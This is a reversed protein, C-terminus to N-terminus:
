RDEFDVNEYYEEKGKEYADPNQMYLIDSAYYEESNIMIPDYREDLFNDYNTDRIIAEEEQQPFERECHMVLTTLLSDTVALVRNVQDDDVAERIAAQRQLGFGHGVTGSSNRTESIYTSEAKILKDEEDGINLMNCVLGTLEPIKMSDVESESKTNTVLLIEKLVSECLTKCRDVVEYKASSQSLNLRQIEDDLVAWRHAYKGAIQNLSPLCSM